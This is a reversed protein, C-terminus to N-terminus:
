TAQRMTAHAGALNAVAQSGGQAIEAEHQQQMMRAKAAAEAQLVRPSKLIEQPVNLDRGERRISAEFDIIVPSEADIQRALLQRQWLQDIATMEAARQALAIPSKFESHWRMGALADPPPPYPSGPGFRRLVSKRWNMSRIRKVLPATWEANLRANIASLQRTEQQQQRATFTATVGKGASAPDAPDTPMLLLNNFFGREIKSELRTMYEIGVTPNAGTSIPSVRDTPRTGNRYYNLSGPSQKIPVIYSNDPVQLPPRNALQVAFVIEKALANMMQIDPLMLMGRGRGMVDQTSRKSLRPCLYPFDEFGGDGIVCYDSESVYVSEFMMHRADGRSPDRNARARPKVRHHFWFKRTEGGDAYAKAIQAGAAPGWQDWAQKATCEWRRSLQDVRDEENEAFCCENLHRDSFLPGNRGDLLALAAGGYGLIDLYVQHSQTPFNLEPNNFVAYDAADAAEFWAKIEPDRALREDDPTTSFWPLTDSTLSSHLGIAGVEHAFMPGADFVYQMRRQGPVRHTTFDARDPDLYLAVRQCHSKWIGRDGDLREWDRVVDKARQDPSDAM